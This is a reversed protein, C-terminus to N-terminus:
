IFYQSNVPRALVEAQRLNKKCEKNTVKAPMM